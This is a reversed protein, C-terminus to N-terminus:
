KQCLELLKKVTNATSITIKDKIPTNATKILWNSKRYNKLDFFWFIHNDNAKLWHYQGKTLSIIRLAFLSIINALFDMM